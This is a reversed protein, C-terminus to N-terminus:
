KGEIIKKIDENKFLEILDNMTAKYVKYYNEVEDHSLYGTANIRRKITKEDSNKFVYVANIVAYVNDMGRASRSFLANVNKPEKSEFDALHCLSSQRILCPYCKGCNENTSSKGSWRQACPHSCSLTKHFGNKFAATNQVSVVIERKTNFRYPNIIRNQLGLEDLLQNFLSFYYPHTTRTSCSGPRSPTLPLNLGIFGNEPVYIKLSNKGSINSFLLASCIFMFSRSRTTKEESDKEEGNSIIKHVDVNFSCFASNNNPYYNLVDKFLDKQTQDMLRNEKNGIFLGKGGNEFFNIAGCFSDLGGSFLSVFDYVFDIGNHKYKNKAFHRYNTKYFSINWLDGTLFSLMKDILTKNETFIDNNIIPVVLEIQRTWADPTDKRSLRKDCALVSLSLVFLDEYITDIEKFNNFKKLEHWINTEITANKTFINFGAGVSDISENKYIKIRSM